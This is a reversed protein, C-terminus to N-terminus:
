NIATMKSQAVSMRKWHSRVWLVILVVVYAIPTVTLFFIILKSFMNIFSDQEYSYVNSTVGVSAIVLIFIVFQPALNKFRDKYPEAVLFAASFLILMGAVAMFFSENLTLGYAIQFVIRAGFIIGSFWRLDCTGRETGDKYCGQITDVFTHLYITWSMPLFCRVCSQFFRFPYFLLLVTPFLGVICCLVLGLIGNPLHDHGFYPLSGNYYLRYQFYVQHPSTAMVQHVKVPLIFDNCVNLCKMGMLFFFTSFSDILSSKLDWTRNFTSFFLKFPKWAVVVITVKRDYALIIAYSLAVLLLPYVAVMLDLYVTLFSHIKFCISSNFFRFFDLNWISYFSGLSYIAYKLWLPNQDATLVLNRALPISTVAQSYLVYGQLYTSHINIKFVVVVVYFVTLPLFAILLFKYWNSGSDPCKTCTLDYSYVSIYYGDLCEGCLSGKRNFRGCMLENWESVNPPLSRYPSSSNKEAYCNYYCLGVELLDKEKNYTICYCTLIGNIRGYEDCRLISYPVNPCNCRGDTGCYSWAPCSSSGNYQCSSVPRQSFNQHSDSTKLTISYDSSTSPLNTRTGHLVETISLVCALFPLRLAMLFLLLDRVFSLVYDISCWLVLYRM